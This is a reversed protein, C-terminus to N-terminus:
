TALFNSFAERSINKGFERKAIKSLEELTLGYLILGIYKAQHPSKDIKTNGKPVKSDV